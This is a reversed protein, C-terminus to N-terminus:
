GVYTMGWLVTDALWLFPVFPIETTKEVKKGVILILSFVASFIVALSLVSWIRMSTFCGGLILLIWVDGEGIKNKTWKSGIFFLIGPVLQLLFNWVTIEQTGFFDKIKFIIGLVVGLWLYWVKIKKTKGDQYAGALLYINVILNRM